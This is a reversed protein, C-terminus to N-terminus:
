SDQAGAQQKLALGGGYAEVVCSSDGQMVIEGHDIWIARECMQVVQAASHSVFLISKGARQFDTLTERCKAQFSSDGVALM